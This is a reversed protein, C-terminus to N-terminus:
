LLEVQVFIHGFPIAYGWAINNPGLFLGLIHSCPKIHLRAKNCHEALTKVLIHYDAINTATRSSGRGSAIGLEMYGLLLTDNLLCQQSVSWVWGALVPWCAKESVLGSHCCCFADHAPEENPGEGDKLKRVVLISQISTIYLSRANTAVKQM